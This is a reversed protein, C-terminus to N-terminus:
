FQTMELISQLMFSKAAMFNCITLFMILPVDSVQAELCSGPFRSYGFTLAAHVPHSKPFYELCRMQHALSAPTSDPLFHNFLTSKEQGPSWQHHDTPRPM